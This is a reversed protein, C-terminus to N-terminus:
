TARLAPSKLAIVCHSLARLTSRSYSTTVCRERTSCTRKLRASNAIDIM